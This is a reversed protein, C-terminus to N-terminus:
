WDTPPRRNRKREARQKKAALRAEIAGRSPKTRKRKVPRKAVSAIMARLKELCDRVNRAQERHSDSALTLEGADNIRNAYRECFRDKVPAPVAKSTKVAWRLRAKTNVKNVNQGGPGSSRAFTFQLEEAPIVIQRNVVLPEAM